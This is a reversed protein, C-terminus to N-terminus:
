AAASAKRARLIREAPLVVRVTTGVGKESEIELTGGHMETMHKALSLGLGVGEYRKVLANEIQHFPKTAVAIEEPSMGIGTDTVAFVAAAPSAAFSLTVRGGQPTFKVANALLNILIQRLRLADARLSVPAEPPRLELALSKNAAQVRVTQVASQMLEGVEVPEEKIDFKGVEIRSADLVNSIVELLHEGADHIDKAYDAYAPPNAPGLIQDKILQSFGIIANLPTRLEHSMNALFMSKAQNAAEARILAEKTRVLDTVDVRLGAIGGSKMRRETILLHRGDSLHQEVVGSAQQHRSIREALWQEERGIAEQYEGRALGLRLLEEFSTGPQIFQATRPYLRRYVDNCLVLRDDKDYIIFAESVCDIADSLLTEAQEARAKSALLDINAAYLKDSEEDLAIQHAVRRGIERMLYLVLGALLLSAIGAMAILVEAHANAEALRQELDLGVGVVLPYNPVRRNSVIRTVHDITDQSIALGDGNASLEAPTPHGAVTEGVGKLGDPSNASFRARVVNDFGVLNIFGRPGIDTSKQLVTLAEPPVSFVLVGLFRGEKSEIQRAIQITVRGSVRGTVPKSIFIGRFSPDAPVRFHERDSLDVPGPHPDLTTSRMWGDPGILSVQLTVVSMQRIQDAMEYVNFNGRHEIVKDAVVSMAGDIDRIVFNIEDAFAASLNAANNMADDLAARRANTISVAALAWLTLVVAAVVTFVILKLHHARRAANM